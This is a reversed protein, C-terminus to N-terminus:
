CRTSRRAMPSGSDESPFTSAPLILAILPDPYLAIPALLADDPHTDGSDQQVAQSEGYQAPYPPPQPPPPPNGEQPTYQVCAQTLLAGAICILSVPPKRLTM